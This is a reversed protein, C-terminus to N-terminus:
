FVQPWTKLSEIWSFSMPPSFMSSSCVSYWFVKSRHIYKSYLVYACMFLYIFYWRNENLVDLPSPLPVVSILPLSPIGGGKEGTLWVTCFTFVIWFSGSNQRRQVTVLVIQFFCWRNAATIDTKDVGHLGTLNLSIKWYRTEQPPPTM